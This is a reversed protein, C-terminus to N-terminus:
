CKPGLLLYGQVMGNQGLGANNRSVDARVEYRFSSYATMSTANTMRPPLACDELRTASANISDGASVQFPAGTVAVGVPM